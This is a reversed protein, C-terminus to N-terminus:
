MKLCPELVRVSISLNLFGKVVNFKEVLSEKQLLLNGIEEGIAEPKKRAVKSYPFTVFTYNGEFDRRTAQLSIKEPDVNEGYLEQICAAIAQGIKEEINM